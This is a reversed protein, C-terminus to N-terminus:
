CKKFLYLTNEGMSQRNVYEFGIDLLIRMIQAKSLLDIWFGDKRYDRYEIAKDKTTDIMSFLLHGNKNLLDYFRNFYVIQEPIPIHQLVFLSLIFDFNHKVSLLHSNDHIYEVKTNKNDKAKIIMKKSVDVGIVQEFHNKLNESLRGIGCGFDLAKNFELQTNKKAFDICIDVHEKGKNFFDEKKWNEKGTLIYHMANKSSLTDWIAESEAIYNKM